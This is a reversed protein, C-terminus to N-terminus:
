ICVSKLGVYLSGASNEYLAMYEAPACVSVLVDRAWATDEAPACASALVDRAWAMDEAPACISVLVDRAWPDGVATCFVDAVFEAPGKEIESRVGCVHFHRDSIV